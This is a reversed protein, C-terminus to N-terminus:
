LFVGLPLGASQMRNKVFYFTVSTEEPKRIQSLITFNQVQSYFYHGEEYRTTMSDARGQETLM